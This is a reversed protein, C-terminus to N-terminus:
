SQHLTIEYSKIMKGNKKIEIRLGRATVIIINGNAFHRLKYSRVNGLLNASCVVKYGESQLSNVETQLARQQAQQLFSLVTGM